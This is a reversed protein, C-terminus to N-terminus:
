FRRELSVKEVTMKKGEHIENEIKETPEFARCAEEALNVTAASRVHKEVLEFLSALLEGDVHAFDLKETTENTSLTATCLRSLAAFEQPRLPGGGTTNKNTSKNNDADTPAGEFVSTRLDNRDECAIIIKEIAETLPDSKVEEEMPMPADKAIGNPVAAAVTTM